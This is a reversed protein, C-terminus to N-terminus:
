YLHPKFPAEILADHRRDDDGVAVIPPPRLSCSRYLSLVAFFHNYRSIFLLTVDPRPTILMSWFGADM